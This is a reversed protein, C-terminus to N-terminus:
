FKLIEWIKELHLLLRLIGINRVRKELDPLSLIRMKNEREEGSRSTESIESKGVRM